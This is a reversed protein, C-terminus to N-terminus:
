KIISKILRKLKLKNLYLYHYYYFKKIEKQTYFESLYEKLNEFTFFYHKDTKIIAFWDAVFKLIGNRIKNYTNLSIKQNELLNKTMSLYIKVFTEPLNYGGKKKLPLNSVYTNNDVVYLSKDTCEYLLSLHPFMEEIDIQRDILIDFSKKDICFASSWTSYYSVNNMFEDFSKLEITKVKNKVAGFPFFMLANCNSYKEISNIFNILEGNKFKSYDNHLKLFKGEGLKLAELLNYYNSYNSNKYKINPYKSFYKEIIKKTEDNPSGDSICVEFLEEDVGQLIISELTEKIIDVRNNTPICISVTPERNM